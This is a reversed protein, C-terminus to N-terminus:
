SSLFIESIRHIWLRSLGASANVLALELPENFCSILVFLSVILIFFDTSLNKTLFFSASWNINDQDFHDSAKCIRLFFFNGIDNGTDLDTSLLRHTRYFVYAYAM